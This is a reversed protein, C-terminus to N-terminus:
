DTLVFLFVAKHRGRRIWDPIKAIAVDPGVSLECKVNREVAVSFSAAMRPTRM